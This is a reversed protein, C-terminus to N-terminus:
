PSPLDPIDSSSSIDNEGLDVMEVIQHDAEEFSVKKIIMELPAAEIVEEYIEEPINEMGEEGPAPEQWLRVVGDSGATVLRGDPM